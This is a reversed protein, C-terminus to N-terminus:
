RPSLDEPRIGFGGERHEGLRSPLLPAKKVRQHIQHGRKRGRGERRQDIKPASGSGLLV